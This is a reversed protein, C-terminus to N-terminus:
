MELTFKFKAHKAVESMKDYVSQCIASYLNPQTWGSNQHFEQGCSFKVFSSDHRTLKSGCYPCGSYVNNNSENILSFVDGVKM